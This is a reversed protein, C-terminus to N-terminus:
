LLEHFQLQTIHKLCLFYNVSNITSLNEYEIFGMIFIKKKM